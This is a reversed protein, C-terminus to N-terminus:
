GTQTAIEEADYEGWEAILDALTAPQSQDGNELWDEIEQTKANCFAKDDLHGFHASYIAEAAREQKHTPCAIVMEGDTTDPLDEILWDPDNRNDTTRNCQSCSFLTTVMQSKRESQYRRYLEAVAMNLLASPEVNHHRELETLMRETEPRPRFSVSKSM